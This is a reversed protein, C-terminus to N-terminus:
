LTPEHVLSMFRIGFWVRGGMSRPGDEASWLDPSEVAHLPDPRTSLCPHSPSFESRHMSPLNCKIPWSTDGLSAIRGQFEISLKYGVSGKVAEWRARAKKTRRTGGEEEAVRQSWTRSEEVTMTWYGWRM